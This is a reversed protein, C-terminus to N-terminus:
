WGKHCKALLLSQVESFSSDPDELVAQTLIFDSVGFSRFYDHGAQPVGAGLLPITVLRNSFEFREEGDTGVLITDGDVLAFKSIWGEGEVSGVPNWLLDDNVVPWSFEGQEQGSAMTKCAYYGDRLPVFQAHAFLYYALVGLVAAIIWGKYEHWISDM